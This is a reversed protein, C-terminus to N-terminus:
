RKGSRPVLGLLLRFLSTQRDLVARDKSLDEPGWSLGLIVVQLLLLGKIGKELM